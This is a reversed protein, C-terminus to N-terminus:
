LNAAGLQFLWSADFCILVRASFSPFGHFVDLYETHAYRMFCYSAHARKFGASKVRRLCRNPPYILAVFLVDTLVVVSFKLYYVM